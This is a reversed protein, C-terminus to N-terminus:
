VFLIEYVIGVFGLVVEEPMEVNIGSM